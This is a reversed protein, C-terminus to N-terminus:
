EEIEQIYFFETHSGVDYWKKGDEEWVRWYPVKYNYLFLFNEIIKIGDQENQATGILKDLGFRNQFVVKKM